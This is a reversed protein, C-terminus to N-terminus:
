LIWVIRPIQRIRCVGSRDRQTAMTRGSLVADVVGQDSCAPEPGRHEDRLHFLALVRVKQPSDDAAIRDSSAIESASLADLLKGGLELRHQRVAVDIQHNDCGAMMLMRRLRDFGQLRALMYENFLRKRYCPVFKIGHAGGVSPQFLGP